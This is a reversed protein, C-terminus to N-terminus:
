RQRLGDIRVPVDTLVVGRLSDGAPSAVWGPTMALIDEQWPWRDRVVFATVPGVMHQIPPEPLATRTRAVPLFTPAVAVPSAEPTAPAEEAFAISLTLLM